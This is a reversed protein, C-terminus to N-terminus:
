HQGRRQSETSQSRQQGRGPASRFGASGAPLGAGATGAPKSAAHKGRVQGTVPDIRRNDHIVPGSGPKESAPM